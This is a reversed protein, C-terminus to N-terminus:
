FTFPQPTAMADMPPVVTDFLTQQTIQGQASKNFLIGQMVPERGVVALLRGGPKLQDFLAPPVATVSGTLLIADYPAQGPLGLSGDGEVVEANSVKAQRLNQRAMTALEPKNELALVRRCKHAMLAAVYGTGAGILLVSDNKSLNLDQV